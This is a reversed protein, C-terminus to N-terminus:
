KRAQARLRTLYVFLSIFIVYALTCFLISVQAGLFRPWFSHFAITDTPLIGQLMATQNQTWEGLPIAPFTIAVLIFASIMGLTANTKGYLGLEYFLDLVECFVFYTVPILWLQM